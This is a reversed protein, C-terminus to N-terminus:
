INEADVDGSELNTIIYCPKHSKKALNISHITGKSLGNWFVIVIDAYDIILKNRKFGASKGYRNWEPLFEKLKLNNLRAFLVGLKDAGEAGGSVIETIRPYQILNKVEKELLFYSDYSRSGIIALVM